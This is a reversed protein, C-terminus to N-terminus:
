EYPSNCAGCAHPQCSCRHSQRHSQVRAESRAHWMAISSQVMGLEEVVLAAEVHVFLVSPVFVCKDPAEYARPPNSSRNRFRNGATM